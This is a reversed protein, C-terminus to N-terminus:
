KLNNTIGAEVDVISILVQDKSAQIAKIKAEIDIFQGNYKQEIVSFQNSLAIEQKKLEQIQLNLEQLKSKTDNLSQELGKKENEKDALLSQKKAEGKSIESDTTTQVLNKYYNASEILRAPTLSKDMKQAIRFVMKYVEANPNQSEEFLTETFELFDFGEQNNQNILNHLRNVFDDVLAKNTETPQIAEGAFSIFKNGALPKTETSTNETNESTSPEADRFFLRMFSIGRDKNESM